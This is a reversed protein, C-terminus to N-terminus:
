RDVTRTNYFMRIIGYILICIGLLLIVKGTGIMDAIIGGAIVPIIGIGGVATTFMGYVLSRKEDSSHEQLSSNAPVDLLSNGIGLFFFLILEICILETHTFVPSVQRLSNIWALLSVLILIGGAMIIGTTILKQTRYRFGYNGVWLAGLIIGVVTPGMIIVSADHVEIHLVKVAFGPGLTGLIAIIVQTGLLLLLSERIVPSRHVYAIGEHINAYLRKILYAFPTRFLKKRGYVAGFHPIRASNWAAIGFCVAIFCFTGTTGAYKLIPGAILSGLALSSFYTFSFLSNATIISQRSVLRPITPAQVPTYFQTIVSNLFSFVYMFMINTPFLLFGLSLIFRTLDCIMLVNRSELKSVITGATIGLALAPIGYLLFLVSVSTNNMTLDYVRIALVFILTNVAIQSFIQGAWLSRFASNVLVISIVSKNDQSSVISM